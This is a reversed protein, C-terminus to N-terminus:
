FRLTLEADELRLTLQGPQIRVVQLQIIRPEREVVFTEGERLPSDNIVIQVQDKLRILGGIRLRSALRALIESNSGAAPIASPSLAVPPGSREGPVPVGAPSIVGRSPAAFPNPPDVPLPEPKRRAALLSDIQSRIRQSRAAAAASGSSVVTGALLVAVLALFLSLRPKM